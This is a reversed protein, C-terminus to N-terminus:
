RFKMNVAPDPFVTRVYTMRSESKVPYGISDVM